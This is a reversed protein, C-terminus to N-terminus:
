KSLSDWNFGAKSPTRVDAKIDPKAPKAISKGVKKADKVARERLQLGTIFKRLVQDKCIRFHPHGKNRFFANLESKSLRQGALTLISIIDEDKLKIAIRLKRFIINNNLRLEPEPQPGERKGRK